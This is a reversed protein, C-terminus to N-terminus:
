TGNHKRYQIWNLNVGNVIWYFVVAIPSQPKIGVDLFSSWCINNQPGGVFFNGKGTIFLYSHRM